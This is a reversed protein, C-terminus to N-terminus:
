MKTMSLPGITIGSVTNSYNLSTPSLKSFAYTASTGKSVVSIIYSGDSASDSISDKFVISFDMSINPSSLVANGSTFTFGMDASSYGTNTSWTGIIWSPPSLASKTAGSINAGGTPQSCGVIALLCFLAILSKM